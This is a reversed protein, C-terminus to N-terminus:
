KVGIFFVKVLATMSAAFQIGFLWMMMTMKVTMESKFEIYDDKLDDTKKKHAECEARREEM